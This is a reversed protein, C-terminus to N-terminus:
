AHRVLATEGTPSVGWLEPLYATKQQLVRLRESCLITMNLEREVAQLRGMLTRLAHAYVRADAKTLADM